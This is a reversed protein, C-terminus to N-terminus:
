ESATREKTLKSFSNVFPIEHVDDADHEVAQAGVIDTSIHVALRVGLGRIHVTEGFFRDDEVLGIRARKGRQRTAAIQKGTAPAM